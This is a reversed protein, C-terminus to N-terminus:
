LWKSWKPLCWIIFFTRLIVTQQLQHPGDKTGVRLDLGLLLGRDVQRHSRLFKQDLLVESFTNWINEFIKEGERDLIQHTSVASLAGKKSIKVELEPIPRGHQQCFAELLYRKRESDPKMRMICGARNGENWVFHRLHQGHGFSPTCFPQRYYQMPHTMDHTYSDDGPLFAMVHWNSGTPWHPWVQWQEHIACTKWAMVAHSPNACVCCRFHGFCFCHRRPFTFIYHIM